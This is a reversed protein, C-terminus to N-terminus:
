AQRPRRKPKEKGGPPSGSDLDTDAPGLLANVLKYIESCPNQNEPLEGRDIGPKRLKEARKCAVRVKDVIEVFQCKGKEYKKIYSRRLASVLDDCCTTPKATEEFHLLVWYEFRM